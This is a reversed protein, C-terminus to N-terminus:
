RLMRGLTALEEDTEYIALLRYHRHNVSAEAMKFLVKRVMDAREKETM